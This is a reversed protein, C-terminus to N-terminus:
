TKMFDNLEKQFTEGGVELCNRHHADSIIRLYKESRARQFLQESMQPPVTPDTSGHLIFVPATINAIRAANNFRNPYVKWLPLFPYLHQAIEHSCTFTSELVLKRVAHHLSLETAVAGGLSVGYVVIQEPRWGRQNHLHAYAARASAYLAGESPIGLSRGYGPYDFALFSFGYRCFFEYHPAFRTLNYRNGHIFLIVRKSNNNVYISDLSLGFESGLTEREFTLAALAGHDHTDPKFTLRRELYSLM